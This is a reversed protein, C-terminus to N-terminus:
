TLKNLVLVSIWPKVVKYIKFCKTFLYPDSLGTKPKVRFAVLGLNLGPPDLLPVPDSTPALPAM